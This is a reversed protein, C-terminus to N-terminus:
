LNAAAWEVTKKLGEAFPTPESYPLVTNMKSIDLRKRYQGDPKSEDFVVEGAYGVEDAVWLALDRVSFEQGTGLNILESSDEYHLMTQILLEAADEVYLFERLPKGSGWVTVNPDGSRKAEVFRRILGHLVKSKEPSFACVNGPGYLHTLCACVARLGHERNLLSSAIQLNRKAYAHGEVTPHPLGDLFDDEHLIENNIWEEQSCSFFRAPYACSAVVSVVKKVGYIRCAGLVNLGMSTNQIFLLAPRKINTEIGGNEGALHFVIDPESAGFVGSVIDTQSLDDNAHPVWINERSVEHKEILQKILWSGLFGRGGTVLIKSNKLDISM